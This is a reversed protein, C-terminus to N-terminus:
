GELGTGVTITLLPYFDLSREVEAEGKESGLGGLSNSDVANQLENSM